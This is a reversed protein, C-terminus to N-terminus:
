RPKVAEDASTSLCGRPNPLSAQVVCVKLAQWAAEVREFGSGHLKTMVRFLVSSLAVLRM